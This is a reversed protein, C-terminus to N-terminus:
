ETLQQFDAWNWENHHKVKATIYTILM